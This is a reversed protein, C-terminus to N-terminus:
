SHKAQPPTRGLVQARQWIGAQSVTRWGWSVERFWGVTQGEAEQDGAQPGARRCCM